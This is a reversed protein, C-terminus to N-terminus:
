HEFRLGVEDEDSFEGEELDRDRRADHDIIIDEQVMDKPPAIGLRKCEHYVMLKEVEPNQGHYSFRGFKVEELVTFREETLPTGLTCDPEDDVKQVVPFVGNANNSSTLPTYVAQLASTQQHHQQRARLAEQERQRKFRERKETDIQVMTRRMFQMKLLDTSVRSTIASIPTASTSAVANVAPPATHPHVKKKVVGSGYRLPTRGDQHRQQQQPHQQHRTQNNNPGKPHFKGKKNSKTM